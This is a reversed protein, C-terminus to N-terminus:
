QYNIKLIRCALTTRSNIVYFKGKKQTLFANLFSKTKWQWLSLSIKWQWFSLSIKWQWFSLSIKWQWFSIPVTIKSFCHFLCVMNIENILFVTKIESAFRLIKFTYVTHLLICNRSEFCSVMGICKQGTKTTVMGHCLCVKWLRKLLSVLSTLPQFFFQQVIWM